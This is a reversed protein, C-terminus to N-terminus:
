AQMLGLRVSYGLLANNLQELTVQTIICTINTVCLAVKVCATLSLTLLCWRNVLMIGFFMVSSNWVTEKCAEIYVTILFDDDDLRRQGTPSMPHGCNSEMETPESGRKQSRVLDHQDGEHGETHKQVMYNQAQWTCLASHKEWGENTYSLDMELM